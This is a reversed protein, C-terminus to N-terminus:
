KEPTDEGYRGALLDLEFDFLDRAAKVREEFAEIGRNLVFADPDKGEDLTAVRVNMEEDLLLDLSRLTASQGATDMDFLMVINKTYRRILRVQDTTLATGLSAAINEFGRDFPRLFDLYGEVIVLADKAAVAERAWNLGYLHQGKTYVPTEPSNIYKVRDDAKIARAGFAVPRSRVDLIPFIVRGRFRDYLTGKTEHRVALGAREIVGDSFGKDRLVKLLGDWSDPAYGIRFREATKKGVVRKKLYDRAAEVEASRGQILAEHFYAAALENVSFVAQRMDDRARDQPTEEPIPVNARAALMRVAEPFDMREHKMVFSLANGGVGCGFCHFIQKDPNVVFSPTKEHHFPCLAKFNRGARKLPIYSGILEAIDTRDIVQGIVDEPILGM